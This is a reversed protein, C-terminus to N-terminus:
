RDDAAVAPAATPSPSTSGDAKVDQSLTRKTEEVINYGTIESDNQLVKSGVRQSPSMDFDSEDLVQDVPREAPHCNDVTQMWESELIRSAQWRDKPNLELLNNIVESIHEPWGLTTHTMAEIAALNTFKPTRAIVPSHDATGPTRGESPPEHWREVKHLFSDWNPDDKSAEAWNYRGLRM